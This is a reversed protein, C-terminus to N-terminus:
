GERTGLNMSPKPCPGAQFDQWLLQPPAKLERLVLWGGTGSVKGSFCIGYSAHPWGERSLCAFERSLWFGSCGLGLPHMSPVTTKRSLGVNLLLFRSESCSARFTFVNWTFHFNAALRAPGEPASEQLDAEKGHVHNALAHHCVGRCLGM